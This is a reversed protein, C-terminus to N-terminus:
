TASAFSGDDKSVCVSLAYSGAIAYTHAASVTFTGNGGSVFGSDSSGDAWSIWASFQEASANLDPTTLTGVAGSGRDSGEGPAFSALTLHLSSPSIWWQFTQKSVEGVGDGAYVGVQYPTDSVAEDLIIGSILGTSWDLELGAPLDYAGYFLSYSAAD